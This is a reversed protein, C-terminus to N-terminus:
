IGAWGSSYGKVVPLDSSSGSNCLGPQYFAERGLSGYYDGSFGQGLPATRGVLTKSRPPLSGTAGSGSFGKSPRQVSTDTRKSRPSHSQKRNGFTSGKQPFNWSRTKKREWFSTAIPKTWGSGLGARMLRGAGSGDARWGVGEGAGCSGAAPTLCAFPQHIPWCTRALGSLTSDRAVPM